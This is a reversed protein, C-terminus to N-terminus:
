DDMAAVIADATIPLDRVRIGLANTIANGLAAATPGMSAEGAGLWKERPQDILFVHVPPTDVFRVIPYDEWTNSSVAGADFRVRERLTWSMAQIAGGEIQNEVGDPNIVRGCDVAIWLGTVRVEEVAEVDAVVACWAGLGKYRAFGIGRGRDTPISSGWDAATAASEVVARARPESLHRLRYEVPDMDFQRALDDIHSEIAFVNM